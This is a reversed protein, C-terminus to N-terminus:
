DCTTVAHHTYWSNWQPERLGPRNNLGAFGKMSVAAYPLVHTGISHTQKLKGGVSTVGAMQLMTHVMHQFNYHQHDRIICADICGGILWM